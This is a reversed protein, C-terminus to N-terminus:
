DVAIDAKVAIGSITATSPITDMGYNYYNHKDTGTGTAVTNDPAGSDTDVAYGGGDAYANAPTTLFGDNDGANTTVAANATPAYTRTLQQSGAAHATLPMALLVVLLFLLAIWVLRKM